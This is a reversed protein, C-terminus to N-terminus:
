RRRRRLLLGFAGVLLFTFLGPASDRMPNVACFGSGMVKWNNTVVPADPSPVVPVATDPLVPRTDPPLVALDPAASADSPPPEVVVIVRTDQADADGGLADGIADGLGVADAAPADARADLSVPPVDRGSDPSAADPGPGDASDRPPSTDPLAPSTDPLADPEGADELIVATDPVATDAPAADVGADLGPVHVVWTYSAPTADVNGAADRARVYFTHSGEGLPETTYDAPCSAFAASDVRCEFTIIQEGSESSTFTFEGTPSSPNPPTTLITTDPAVLDVVWAYTAPSDDVAGGSDKARV